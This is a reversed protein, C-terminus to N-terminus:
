QTKIGGETLYEAIDEALRKTLALVLSRENKITRKKIEKIVDKIQNKTPRIEIAPDLIGTPRILKGLLNSRQSKVNSLNLEYEAPTASVYVLRGIKENFEEFKLPRNDKASALRFGYNVM